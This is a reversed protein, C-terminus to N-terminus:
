GLYKISLYNLIVHFLNDVIIYLWLTLFIPREKAFGFNETNFTWNKVALFWGVINTRDIIYHTVYIAIVAQWTTIFLFPLSYTICHLHCALEGQWTIKKKNLAMWDNQILYDGIGHFILQTM